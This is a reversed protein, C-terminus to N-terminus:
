ELRIAGEPCAAIAIKAAEVEAEGALERDPAVGNGQEDSGFLEPAKAYCRLHGTCVEPDIVVRM